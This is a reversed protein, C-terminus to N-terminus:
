HLHESSRQSFLEMEVFRFKKSSLESIYNKDAATTLRFCIFFIYVVDNLVMLFQKEASLMLDNENKQIQCVLATFHKKSECVRRNLHQYVVWTSIKEQKLM